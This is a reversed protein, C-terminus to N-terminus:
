LLRTYRVTNFRPCPLPNFRGVTVVTCGGWTAIEPRVGGARNPLDGVLRMLLPRSM